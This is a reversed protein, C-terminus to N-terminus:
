LDYVDIIGRMLIARGPPTAVDPPGSNDDPTPVEVARDLTLIATSRTGSVSSESRTVVGQIRYWILERADLLFNGPKTLPHPENERVHEVGTPWSGGAAWNWAIQVQNSAINDANGDEDIDIDANGFNAVYAHEEAATVSRKFCVVVKIDARGSTEKRVTLFWSYRRDFNEIRALGVDLEPAGGPALPFRAPAPLQSSWRVERAGPDIGSTAATGTDPLIDRVFTMTGDTSTLVIRRAGGIGSLDTTPPFTVIGNTPGTPDADTTVLPTAELVQEWSDPLMTNAAAAALASMGGNIRLIPATSIEDAVWLTLGAGTTRNSRCGFENIPYLAAGGAAVEDASTAWGLPDVVYRSTSVVPNVTTSDLPVVPAGAYGSGGDISLQDYVQVFSVPVWILIDDVGNGNVDNSDLTGNGNLDEGPDLTGNGNLDEAERIDVTAGSLSWAPEYRGSTVPDPVAILCQYWRHPTPLASGTKVSPSVIDGVQYSTGPSWQGRWQPDSGAGIHQNFDLVTPNSRLLDENNLKLIKANTHTTAQIARLISIPFLTFVSVVGVGMILIGMLVETLTAGARGTRLGGWGAPYVQSAIGHAPRDVFRRM